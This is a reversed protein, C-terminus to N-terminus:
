GVVSYTSSSPADSTEPTPNYIEKGFYNVNHKKQKKKKKKNPKVKKYYFNKFNEM